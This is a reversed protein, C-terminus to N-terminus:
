DVGKRLSHFFESYLVPGARMKGRLMRQWAGKQNIKRRTFRCNRVIRNESSLARLFGPEQFVGSM